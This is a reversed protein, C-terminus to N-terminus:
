VVMYQTMLCDKNCIINIVILHCRCGYSVKDKFLKICLSRGDEYFFTIYESCTTLAESLM